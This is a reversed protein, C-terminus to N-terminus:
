QIEFTGPNGPTGEFSEQFTGGTSSTWRMDYRDEGDVEFTLVSECDSVREYSYSFDGVGQLTATDGTEAFTWVNQPGGEEHFQITQGAISEPAFVSACPESEETDDCASSGMGGSVVIVIVPWIWRRM